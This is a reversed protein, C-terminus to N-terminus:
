EQHVNPACRTCWSHLVHCTAFSTRSRAEADASNGDIQVMPGPPQVVALLASWVARFDGRGPVLSLADGGLDVRLQAAAGGRQQGEGRDAEGLQSLMKKIVM